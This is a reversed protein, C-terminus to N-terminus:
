GSVRKRIAYAVRMKYMAACVTIEEARYDHSIYLRTYDLIQYASEKNRGYM